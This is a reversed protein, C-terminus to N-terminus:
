DSIHDLSDVILENESGLEIFCRTLLIMSMITTILFVFITGWVIFVPCLFKFVVSWFLTVLSIFILYFTVIELKKM